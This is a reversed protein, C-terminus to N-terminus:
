ELFCLIKEKRSQNIKKRRM